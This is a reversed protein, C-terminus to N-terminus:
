RRPTTSASDSRRLVRRENAEFRLSFRTTDAVPDMVGEKWGELWVQVLVVAKCAVLGGVEVYEVRRAVVKVAVEVKWDM